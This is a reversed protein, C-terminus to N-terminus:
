GLSPHCFLTPEVKNVAGTVVRDNKMLAEYGIEAVRQPAMLNAKQFARTATMDAQPIEPQSHTPLHSGIPRQRVVLSNGPM